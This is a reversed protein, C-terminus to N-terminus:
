YSPLRRRLFSPEPNLQQPIPDSIQNNPVVYQGMDRIQVIEHLSELHQQLRCAQDGHFEGMEKLQHLLVLKIGDIM